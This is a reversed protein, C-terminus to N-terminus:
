GSKWVYYYDNFYLKFYQIYAKFVFLVNQFDLKKTTHRFPVQIRTKFNYSQNLNISNFLIQDSFITLAKNEFM